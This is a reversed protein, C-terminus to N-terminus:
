QGGKLICCVTYVINCLRLLLNSYNSFSDLLVAYSIVKWEMTSHTSKIETGELVALDLSLPDM